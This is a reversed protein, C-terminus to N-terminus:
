LNNFFTKFGEALLAIFGWYANKKEQQPKKERASPENIKKRASPESSGTQWQTNTHNNMKFSKVPDYVIKNEDETWQM